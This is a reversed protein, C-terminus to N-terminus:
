VVRIRSRRAGRQGRAGRERLYRASTVPALTPVYVYRTSNVFAEPVVTLLGTDTTTRRSYRPTLRPLPHWPPM